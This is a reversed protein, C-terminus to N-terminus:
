GSAHTDVRPNNRLIKEIKLRTIRAMNHTANPTGKAPQPLKIPTETKPNERVISQMPINACYM